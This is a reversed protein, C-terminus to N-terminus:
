PKRIVAKKIPGGSLELLEYGMTKVWAKVDSEFAPDSAEVSLTQGPSMQKIARSLKVIPLPCRLQTCDLHIDIKKVEETKDKSDDKPLLASKSSKM